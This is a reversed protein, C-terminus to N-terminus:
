CINILRSTENLSAYHEVGFSKLSAPSIGANNLEKVLTTTYRLGSLNNLNDVVRFLQISSSYNTEVLMTNVYVKQANQQKYFGYLGFIIGCGAVIIKYKWISEIGFLLFKFLAVTLSKTVNKVSLILGNIGTFFTFIDVERNDEKSSNNMIKKKCIYSM